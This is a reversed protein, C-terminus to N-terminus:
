SQRRRRENLLRCLLPDLPADRAAHRLAGESGLDGQLDPEWELCEPDSAGPAATGGQSATGELLRVARELAVRAAAPEPELSSLLLYSWGWWRAGQSDASLEEVPSELREFAARLDSRVRPDDRAVGALAYHYALAAQARRQHISTQKGVATLHREAIARATRWEREASAVEGRAFALRGLEIHIWFRKNQVASDDPDHEALRNLLDRGAEAHERSRELEGVGALHKALYAHSTALASQYRRNEPEEALLAERLALERELHKWAEDPRDLLLLVVGVTNHSAALDSRWTRSEPAGRVLRQKIVLSEEFRALAEALRGEAQLVSGLNSHAYSLELQWDPRDPDIRTLRRSIALYEEFADRAEALSGREWAVFGVWYWSQGLEFLREPDDPALRHLRRNLALSDRLPATAGALNGQRIRLDGLQYLMRSRRLLEGESLEDEPVAVFYDSAAHAVDDLVALRSVPELKEQLDGVMFGILEEAQAQRREARERAADARLAFIWVAISAATLAVVALAAMGVLLRYRLVFRTLRYALGAAYAEVVEGDLFRALDEAVSRASAYREAPDRALCRLVIAELETPLNPQRERPPPPDACVTQRLVDITLPGSYPLSGTLLRYMTVGLSYLDSRRDVAGAGDLREPAIYHPSGAVATGALGDPETLDAAIGFDSVYAVLDGDATEEVLVNSPKVDRHLLGERHAAQLGEAVQIFLKVKHELSLKPAVEGLSGGGVHRMSLFPQGALVGSDYIELVHEHRVRAQARAERLFLARIAPDDSTLFKLAVRRGLWRDHAEVVRGMGGRGLCEGIEYREEPSPVPDPGGPLEAAPPEAGGAGQLREAAPRELFSGSLKEAAALRHRAIEALIPETAALEHIYDRREQEELVAADLLIEDLRTRESM